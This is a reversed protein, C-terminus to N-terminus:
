RYHVFCNDLMSRLEWIHPRVGARLGVCLHTSLAKLQIMLRETVRQDREASHTNRTRLREIFVSKQSEGELWKLVTQWDGFAKRSAKKDFSKLSAQRLAMKNWTTVFLIELNNRHSTTM